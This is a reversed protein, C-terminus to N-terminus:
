FSYTFGHFFRKMNDIQAVQDTLRSSNTCQQLDDNDAVRSCIMQLGVLIQLKLLWSTDM